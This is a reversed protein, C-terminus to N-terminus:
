TNGAGSPRNSPDTGYSLLSTSGACSVRDVSDPQSCLQGSFFNRTAVGEGLMYDLLM